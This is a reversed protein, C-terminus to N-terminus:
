EDTTDDGESPSFSFEPYSGPSEAATLPPYPLQAAASDLEEYIILVHFTSEKVSYTKEFEIIKCRRNIKVDNFINELTQVDAPVAMNLMKVKIM